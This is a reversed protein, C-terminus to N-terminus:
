SFFSIPNLPLEVDFKEGCDRCVLTSTLDLGWNNIDDLYGAIRDIHNAGASRIWESILNRDEIGDISQIVSMLNMFINNQIDEVSLKEKGENAQLV